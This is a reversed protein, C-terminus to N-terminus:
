YLHFLKKLDYSTIDVVRKLRNDLISKIVISYVPLFRSILVFYQGIDGNAGNCFINVSSCKCLYILVVLNVGGWNYLLNITVVTITVNLQESCHNGSIDASQWFKLEKWYGQTLRLDPDQGINQVKIKTKKKNIRDVSLFDINSLLSFCTDSM